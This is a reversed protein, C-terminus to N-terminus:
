NKRRKKHKHGFPFLFSVFEGEVPENLFQAFEEQHQTIFNLLEPNQAGIQQIIPQLAQPQQQVLLRLQQMLRDNRLAAFPSAAGGASQRAANAALEFLNDGAGGAPAAAPAGAGGAAAALGSALSGAAGGAAPRLAPAAGGAGAGGARPSAPADDPIGSMLYEVARDPNNYSARLARRVQDAEFGM